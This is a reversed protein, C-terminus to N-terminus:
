KGKLVDVSIIDEAKIGEGYGCFCTNCTLSLRKNNLKCYLYCLATGIYNKDKGHDIVVKRFKTIVPISKEIYKGILDIGYENEMGMCMDEIIEPIRLYDHNGVQNSNFAIERVLMAYPGYHDRCKRKSDFRTKRFGAGKGNCIEIWEENSIRDKTLCYLDSQLQHLIENLPLIGNYYSEPNLSRSLHYWMIQDITGVGFKKSFYEFLFDTFYDYRDAEREHLSSFNVSTIIDSIIEAPQGFYSAVSTLAAKEDQCDLIM